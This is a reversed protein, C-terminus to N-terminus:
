PSRASSYTEAYRIRPKDGCERPVTKKATEFGVYLRNIGANVPFPADSDQM